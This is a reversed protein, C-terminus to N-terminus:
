GEAGPRVAAVIALKSNLLLALSFAATRDQITRRLYDEAFKADASDLSSQMAEAQAWTEVALTRERIHRAGSELIEAGRSQLHDAVARTIVSEASFYFAIGGGALALAVFFLATFLLRARLSLRSLM